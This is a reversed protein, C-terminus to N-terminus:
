QGQLTDLGIAAVAAPARAVVLRRDVLCLGVGEVFDFLGVSAFTNGISNPKISQIIKIFIKVFKATGVRNEQEQTPGASSRTTQM